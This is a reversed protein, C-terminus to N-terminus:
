YDYDTIGKLERIEAELEAIRERGLTRLAEIDPQVEAIVKDAWVRDSEKEAEALDEYPTDIQREWRAIAEAAARSHPLLRTGNDGTLNAGKLVSLMHRTWHAWQEHELAALKERTDSM